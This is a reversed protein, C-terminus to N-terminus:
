IEKVFRKADWVMLEGLHCIHHLGDHYGWDPSPQWLAIEREEYHDPTLREVEYVVMGGGYTKRRDQAPRLWRGEEQWPRGAPRALDCRSIAPSLRHETWPGTLKPAHFLFTHDRARRSEEGVWMWYRDEHWIVTPDVGAFDPILVAEQCWLDPFRLCRYLAVEGREHQEPLCFLEGQEELLFPYSLHWDRVIAPRPAFDLLPSASIHGRQTLADFEEFFVWTQHNRQLLFPDAYFRGRPPELWHPKQTCCPSGLTQGQAYAM